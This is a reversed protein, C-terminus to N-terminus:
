WVLNWCTLTGDVPNDDAFRAHHGAPRHKCSRYLTVTDANFVKALDRRRRHRKKWFIQFFADRNRRFGAMQSLLVHTERRSLM